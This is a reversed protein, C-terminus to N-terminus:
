LLNSHLMLRLIVKCLSAHVDHYDGRAEETENDGIEDLAYKEEEFFVVAEAILLIIM